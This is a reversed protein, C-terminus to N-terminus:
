VHARGIQDKNLLLQVSELEEFLKWLSEQMLTSSISDTINEVFAELLAEFTVGQKAIDLVLNSFPQLRVIAPNGDCYTYFAFTGPNPNKQDSLFLHTFKFSAIIATPNTYFTAEEGTTLVSLSSIHSESRLVNKLSEWRIMEETVDDLHNRDQLYSKLFTLFEGITGQYLRGISNRHRQNEASIWKAWSMLLDLPDIGREDLVLMMSRLANVMPFYEEAARLTGKDIGDYSALWSYRTFIEFHNEMLTCNELHVEDSLPFDVFNPDFVLDPRITEFNSSGRYPSFGFLHVISSPIRLFHLAEKLTGRLSIDSEGPLGAIFGVTVGIDAEATKSIIYHAKELNLNKDIKAQMEATGTEVGFYINRCGAKKMWYIQEEDLTDTRSSCTWTIQLDSNALEQCFKIVWRRDTTFLDHTFNIDTRGYEDRFYSLERLIRTPSKIRHKRQWYPATFCFNCRFPCGRGVELYIEDEPDLKIRSLDPWPLTDLDEILPLYPNSVVEGSKRYTLNGVEQFDQQTKLAKVLFQFANEGEGRMVFDVAPFDRLTELHVATAHPGGLLLLVQSNKIKLSQCIRLLHHYSDAETMFGILDPDSELLLEAAVEYFDKSIPLIGSNIAKNIDIIKVDADSGIASAISVLGMPVFRQCFYSQDQFETWDRRHHYVTHNLHPSTVLLVRM